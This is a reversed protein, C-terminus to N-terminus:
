WIVRTHCTQNTRNTGTCTNYTTDNNTKTFWRAHEEASIAHDSYMWRAIEPFNRWTLLRDRDTVALPRLVVHPAASM